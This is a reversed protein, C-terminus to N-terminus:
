RDGAIELLVQELDNWLSQDVNLNATLFGSVGVDANIESQAVQRANAFEPSALYQMVAWVEPADRFAGVVIGGVLTPRGENAPFYFTSM